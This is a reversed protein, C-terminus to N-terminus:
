LCCLEIVILKILKLFYIIMALFIAKIFSL